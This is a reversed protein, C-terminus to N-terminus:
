RLYFLEPEANRISAARAKWYTARFDRFEARDIESPDQRVRLASHEERSLEIIPGEARQNAHHLIIANGNRDLPALGQEMRQRNTRGERDLQDRDFLSNREATHQGAFSNLRYDRPNAGADALEREIADASRSQSRTMPMRDFLELARRISRVAHGADPGM